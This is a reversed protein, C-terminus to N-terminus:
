IDLIGIEPGRDYLFDRDDSHKAGSWLTHEILAENVPSEKNTVM